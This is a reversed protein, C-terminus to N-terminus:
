DLMLGTSDEKVPAMPPQAKILVMWDAIQVHTFYESALFHINLLSSSTALIVLDNLADVTHEQILLHLNFTHLKPFFQSAPAM